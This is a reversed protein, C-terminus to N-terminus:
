LTGLKKWRTAAGVAEFPGRLHWTSCTTLFIAQALLTAFLPVFAVLLVDARVDAGDEELFSFQPPRLLM